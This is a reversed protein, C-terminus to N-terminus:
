WFYGYSMGVSNLGDNVAALDANSYHIFSFGIQHHEFLVLGLGFKDEFQLHSGLNRDMYKDHKLYTAGIGVEAYLTVFDFESSLPYQYRLVPTISLGSNNRYDKDRWFHYVLELNLSIGHKNLLGQGTDMTHVWGLRYSESTRPPGDGDWRAKIKGANLTLGESGLSINTLLYFVFVIVYITVVSFERIAKEM